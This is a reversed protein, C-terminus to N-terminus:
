LLCYGFCLYREEAVGFEDYPLVFSSLVLRPCCDVSTVPATPPPMAPPSCLPDSGTVPAASVAPPTTLTSDAPPHIPVSSPCRVMEEGFGPPERVAEEAGVRRGPPERVAEGATAGGRRVLGRLLLLFQAMRM